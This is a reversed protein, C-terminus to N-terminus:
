GRPPTKRRRPTKSPKRGMNFKQNVLDRRRLDLLHGIVGEKPLIARHEFHYYEMAVLEEQGNAGRSILAASLCTITLPDEPKKRWFEFTFAFYDGQNPTRPDRFQISCESLTPDIDRLTPALDQYNFGLKAFQEPLQEDPQPM